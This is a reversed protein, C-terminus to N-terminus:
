FVMLDWLIGVNDWKENALWRDTPASWSGGPQGPPGLPGSTEPVTAFAVQSRRWDEWQKASKMPISHSNSHIYVTYLIYNYIYIFTIIYIILYIYFKYDYIYNYIIVYTGFITIDWFSTWLLRLTFYDYIPYFYLYTYVTYRVGGLKEPYFPISSFRIGLLKGLPLIRYIILMARWFIAIQLQNVQLLQHNEM